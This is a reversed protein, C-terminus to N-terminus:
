RLPLEGLMEQDEINSGETQLVDQELGQSYETINNNDVSSVSPISFTDIDSPPLSPLQTAPKAVPTSSLSQSLPSKPSVPKAIAPLELQQTQELDDPRPM